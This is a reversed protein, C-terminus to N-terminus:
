RRRLTCRHVAGVKPGYVKLLGRITQEISLMNDVFQKRAILTTRIVQSPRSKVPVPKFHGLRM